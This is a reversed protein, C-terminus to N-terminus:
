EVTIDFVAKQEENNGDYTVTRIRFDGAHDVGIVVQAKCKAGVPTEQPYYTQEGPYEYGMSGEADVITNAINLFLGDWGEAEYGLNEYSYTILYVAEPEYDSYENREEQLEIGEITCSWQGAVTWTEGIKYSEQTSSSLKEQLEEIQKELDAVQAELEAIRDDKEDAMVTTGCMMVAALTVALFKKKM